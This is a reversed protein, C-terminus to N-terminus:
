PMPAARIRMTAAAQAGPDLVLMGTDSAGQAARNFADTVHTVPEIAISQGDAPTYVVLHRCPAAADITIALGCEPLMLEAVGSWAAFVHDLTVGDLRRARSFGWPEPRICRQPLGTADNEWMGDAAFALTASASRPFFPHWGLGCPFRSSGVNELALSAVLTVSEGDAELALEQEARFPWPWLRAMEDEAGHELVLRVRSAQVSTVRWPRQWGVGHIAHAVGALCCALLRTQGDFHLRGHAIRNSYPVLPYCAMGLVDAAALAASSASKLVEAGARTFSAISGGVAPLVAARANGLVLTVVPHARATMAAATVPSEDSAHGRASPQGPPRARRNVRRRPQTAAFSRGAREDTDELVELFRARGPRAAEGGADERRRLRWELGQQLESEDMDAASITARTGLQTTIATSWARTTPPNVAPATLHQRCLADNDALM